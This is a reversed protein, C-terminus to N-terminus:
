TYSMLPVEALKESVIAMVLGIKHLKDNLSHVENRVMALEVMAAELRSNVHELMDLLPRPLDSPPLHGHSHQAGSSGIGEISSTEPSPLTIGEDDVM